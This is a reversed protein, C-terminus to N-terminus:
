GVYICDENRTRFYGRIQDRLRRQRACDTDNLCLVGQSDRRLDVDHNYANKTLIQWREMYKRNKKSGHWFHTLQGPVYGLNRRIHKEARAQWECLNRIYAQSLGGKAARFSNQVQGVLAMAMHKDGAGLIGWDILGGVKDLADRRAAWAYGPHWGKCYDYADRVVQGTAYAYGFGMHQQMPEYNPGVDQAHSFMQVFDYHQLQHVTEEAWDPRAFQVDADVWAVYKCEPDMQIAHNIGLNLMNEKHWLEERTRLQVHWPHDRKTVEFPRDGYAIEVTTLRAGADLVRKAFARYLEYRSRFRMPNSIATIVHLLDPRM